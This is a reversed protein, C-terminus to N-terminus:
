SDYPYPAPPAPHSVCLAEGFRETHARDLARWLEIFDVWYKATAQDNLKEERIKDNIVINVVRYGYLREIVEIDISNSKVLMWVRELLGMYAEVEAWAKGSPQRGRWWKYDSEANRLRLHIDDHERFQEHLALLFQGRTTQSQQELQERAAKLQDQAVGIQRKAYRAAFAVGVAAVLVSAITVIDGSSLPDLDILTAL